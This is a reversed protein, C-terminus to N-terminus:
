YIKFNKLDLPAANIGLLFCVLLIKSLLLEVFSVLHEMVILVHDFCKMALHKERINECFLLDLSVVLM